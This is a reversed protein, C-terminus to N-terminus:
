ENDKKFLYDPLEIFKNTKRAVVRVKIEPETKVWEPYDCHTLKVFSDSYEEDVEEYIYIKM